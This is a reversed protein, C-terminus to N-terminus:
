QELFVIMKFSSEDNSLKQYNMLEVSKVWDQRDISEIWDDLVTNSKTWGLIEIKSQDIEVKRKEKLKEIVPFVYMESLRIDKPVAKGIEDLYFSIFNNTVVGSNLVLQQKRIEEQGLKELISM